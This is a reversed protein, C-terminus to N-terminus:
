YLNSVLGISQHRTFQQELERCGVTLKQSGRRERRLKCQGMLERNDDMGYLEIDFERKSKRSANGLTLCHFAKKIWCCIRSSVLGLREEPCFELFHGTRKLHNRVSARASARHELADHQLAM